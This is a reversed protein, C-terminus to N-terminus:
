AAMQWLLVVLWCRIGHPRPLLYGHQLRQLKCQEESITVSTVDALDAAGGTLTWTSPGGPSYCPTWGGVMQGSPFTITYSAGNGMGLTIVDHDVVGVPAQWAYFFMSTVGTLNWAGTETMTDVAVGYNGAFNSEVGICPEGALSTNWDFFWGGPNGNTLTWNGASGNFSDMTVDASVSIACLCIVALMVVTSMLTKMKTDGKLYQINHSKENDSELHSLLESGLWKQQRVVNGACPKERNERISSFAAALVAIVALVILVEIPM